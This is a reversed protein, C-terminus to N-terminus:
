DRAPWNGIWTNGFRDRRTPPNDSTAVTLDDVFVHNSPPMEGSWWSFLLAAPVLRDVEGLTPVDSRDFLLNDDRWVIFRARETGPGGERHHFRLYVEYREWRETPVPLGDYSEYVGHGEKITRFVDSPGRANAIMFDNHGDFTGMPDETRVRVLYQFPMATFQFTAPWRAYFRVWLEDGERLEPDLPVSAGWEGFGGADVPEIAMRASQAGRFSFERTVTTRSFTRPPIEGVPYSEFDDHFYPVWGGGADSGGDGPGGGSDLVGTDQSGADESGSDQGGADQSGSDQPGADVESCECAGFGTGDPLCM